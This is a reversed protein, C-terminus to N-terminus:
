IQVLGCVNLVQSFGLYGLMSDSEEQCIICIPREKEVEEEDKAGEKTESQISCAFSKASSQIAQMARERADNKRAELLAKKDGETVSLKLFSIQRCCPLLETCRDIIWKHWMKHNSEESTSYSKYIDILRDFLGDFNCGRGSEKDCTSLDQDKAFFDSICKRLWQTQQSEGEDLSSSKVLGILVHVILTILHLVRFYESESCSIRQDRYKAYKEITNCRRAAVSNVLSLIFNHLLCDSLINLRITTFFPHCPLLKGVLPTPESLKPRLEFAEQHASSTIHLFSPDYEAWLEAKLCHQPADLASLDRSHSVDDLISDFLSTECKDFDPVLSLCEQLQSYTKPGSVLRHVIERRLLFAIRTDSLAIDVAPIPIESTLQILVLLSEEVMKPM